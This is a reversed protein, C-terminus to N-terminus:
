WDQSQIKPNPLRPNLVPTTFTGKGHLMLRPRAKIAADLDMPNVAPVDGLLIGTFLSWLLTSTIM